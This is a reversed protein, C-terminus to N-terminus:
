NKQQKQTFGTTGGARLIGQRDAEAKNNTSISNAVSNVTLLLKYNYGM